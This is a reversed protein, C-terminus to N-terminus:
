PRARASPVRRRPGGAAVTVDNDAEAFLAAAAAAAAGFGCVIGVATLLRTPTAPLSSIVVGHVFVSAAQMNLVGVNVGILLALWARASRRAFALTALAGAAMVVAYGVGAWQASRSLRDGMAFGLAAAVGAIAGVAALV